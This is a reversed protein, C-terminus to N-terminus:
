TAAGPVEARRFVTALWPQEHRPRGPPRYYHELEVFGVSQVMLKWQERDHYAGFRTGHWGEENTGRPNSAFLVGDAVLTKRLERLVGPLAQTPVHFLSANAFVGDFRAAPLALRVFDQHWVECASHQRAMECFRRSGDVGVPEHGLQKFAILDRGPGCGLDLIRLPGPTTIHRLLAARNQSVDHDRTGLWFEEANDDYHGVTRASIEALQAESLRSM